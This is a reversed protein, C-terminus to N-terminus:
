SMRGRKNRHLKRKYFVALVTVGFLVILMPAWSPFEPIATTGIIKITKTSHPYTFYLYTNNTDEKVTSTVLNEDVLVIRRDETHLLNKPITVRCFGTTGTEGDVNFSILNSEPNFSFNSVTSNSIIDINYNTWEWTGADFSKIPAMLPYHDTLIIKAVNFDAMYHYNRTDNAYIVYPTDGIGDDNDDTGNYDSWYNGEKGNDLFDTGRVGEWVTFTKEGAPLVKNEVFDFYNHYFTNNSADKVRNGLIIGQIYNAYFINDNGVIALNSTITNGYVINFSGGIPVFNTIINKAVINEDGSVDLGGSLGSDATISNGYVVNHSGSTCIGGGSGSVNNSTITNYSGVCSVLFDSSGSITNNAITQNSGSLNVSPMTNNIIQTKNGTVSVGMSMVNGTIQLTNGVTSISGGDSTITFGILKVNNAEIKIPNSYGWFTQTFITYPVLPPHLSIKTNKADEGILSLTKNIALTQNIPGEYTGKKVLITDGETANGIADTITQYDDPVIITKAEAKATFGKSFALVFSFVLLLIITSKIKKTKSHM